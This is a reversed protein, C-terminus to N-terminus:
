STDETTTHDLRLRDLFRKREITSIHDEGLIKWSAEVSQQMLLTAATGRGLDNYIRALNTMSNLIDPHEEGMIRRQAELAMEELDVADELKGQNQYVSALNSMSRLTDPHEEGLIRRQVELVREELDAAHELKGQNQYASALNSMSRLTDPHEEGLIRRQAELVMEELDVAHELKGQSQYVSALYGMSRLTDPHEEGLIRRQAELVMEELGVAHELKGQSQYASALNSMSRLTDPHEEGLIRRQAELVMEELDVAHELKGQSQYVSALYGMSRLTDPHEEGLIRRQAELVMEELGVAHELKGQSQYVLALNGMSRLTEPHDEGLIIRQALLVREQLDAADQLRGQNRYTSALNNMSTLTQPHEEGLIRQRAVLVSEDLDAAEQLKGQSQYTSALNSMSTLTDPHEEGLIKKQGVLVREELDSADQLKGQSRYTSALNSMSTFTQPHEEGLIRQRAVLVREELDSAEQLKGQSWSTSALNSMSTLTDPHEEGLIKKRGVLVREELDSADQLKGQSRYTSALNSMSTLTDSAQDGFLNRFIESSLLELREGDKMKGDNSLFGGIRGLTIAAERSPIEAAQFAPEVVQNEFKRCLHRTEATEWRDPFAAYCISIVEGMNRHVEAESLEDRLVTQILRHIFISDKRPSIRILSFRELLQLSEYLAFEDDIIQRLEDRLGRSGARLFDILIEDPNLFVLLQLLKEAQIGNKVERVKELSLLFTSAVSNHGSISDRRLFRKRSRRYVPLFETIDKLSRIFAAAQDIALPLFGLENVIESAESKDSSFDLRNIDSRTLLLEVAEDKDLVPIQFSQAPITRTDPNRTTILTHGGHYMAPLFGNAVSIDDLNDIVLLWNKQRKLWSIVNRAVERPKLDEIESALLCGTQAAIEQFGLCLAAEHVGSIWYIDDYRGKHRYVYEMAIQTKGVGGMGYMAVRHGYRNPNTEVLEQRLRRLLENRGVFHPNRDYPMLFVRRRIQTKYREVFLALHPDDEPLPCDKSLSAKMERVPAWNVEKVLKPVDHIASDAYSEDKRFQGSEMVDGFDLVIDSL